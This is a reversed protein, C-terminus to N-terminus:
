LFTALPIWRGVLLYILFITFLVEIFMTRKVSLFYNTFFASFPIALLTLHYPIFSGSYVASAVAILLFMLLARTKKRAELRGEFLGPFLRFISLAVLIAIFFWVILVYESTPLNLRPLVALHFYFTNAVEFLQDTLFYYVALYIYPLLFGIVSILWERWTYIQYVFFLLWLFLIFTVYPFYIWSAISILIGSQLVAIYPEKSKYISLMQNMVAIIIFNSILVPHLVNIVPASSMLVVYVLAPLLVNRQVLNNSIFIENLWIAQLFVFIGALIVQVMPWSEFITYIFNYLPSFSVSVPMAVPQTLSHMWLGVCLLFLLIFQLILKNKFYSILM